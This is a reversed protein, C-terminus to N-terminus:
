QGAGSSLGTAPQAGLSRASSRKGVPKKCYASGCLYLPSARYGAEELRQLLGKEVRGDVEFSAVHLAGVVALVSGKQSMELLKQTMEENRFGM